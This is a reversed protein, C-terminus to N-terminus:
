SILLDPIRDMRLQSTDYRSIISFLLHQLKKRLDNKDKFVTYLDFLYDILQSSLVKEQFRSPLHHQTKLMIDVNALQNLFELFEHLFFIRASHAEQLCSDLGSIGVEFLYPLLHFKLTECLVAALAEIQKTGRLNECVVLIQNLSMLFDALFKFEFDRTPLMRILDQVTALVEPSVLEQHAESLALLYNQLTEFSKMVRNYDTEYGQGGRAQVFNQAVQALILREGQRKTEENFM